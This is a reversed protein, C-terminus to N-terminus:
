QKSCAPARATGLLEVRAAALEIALPLGDLRRCIDVVSPVDADTLEFKDLSARARESFLEIASFRLAESATLAAGPPPLELPALRLVWENRARLPERGPPM